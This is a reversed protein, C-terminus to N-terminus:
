MLSVVQISGEHWFHALLAIQRLFNANFARPREGPAALPRVHPVVDEITGVGAAGEGFCLRLWLAVVIATLSKFM